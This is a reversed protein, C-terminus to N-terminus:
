SFPCEEPASVIGDQSRVMLDSGSKRVSELVRNVRHGVEMDSTMVHIRSSGEPLYTLHPEIHVAVDGSLWWSTERSSACEVESLESLDGLADLVDGPNGDCLALRRWGVLDVWIASSEVLRFVDSHWPLFEGSWSVGFYGDARCVLGCQVFQPEAFNFIWEGGGSQWPKGSKVGLRMWGQLEGGQVPFSIGGFEQEHSLIVDRVYGPADFPITPVPRSIRKGWVELFSRAKPTLKNVM